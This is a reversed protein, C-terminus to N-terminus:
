KKKRMFGSEWKSADPEYATIVIVENDVNNYAMVVHLPRDNGEGLLLYSPYPSDDQYEEIVKGRTVIETVEKESIKRDFMQNVAHVRYLIRASEINNQFKRRGSKM